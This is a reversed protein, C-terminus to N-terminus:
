LFSYGFAISWISLTVKTAHLNHGLLLNRM